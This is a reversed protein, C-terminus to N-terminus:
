VARASNSNFCDRRVAASFLRHQPTGQPSREANNERLVQVSVVARGSLRAAPGAAPCVTREVTCVGGSTCVESSNVLGRFRGDEGAGPRCPSPFIYCAAGLAVLAPVPLYFKVKPSSSWRVATDRVCVM